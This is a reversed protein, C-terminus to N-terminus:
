GQFLIWDDTKEIQVVNPAVSPLIGLVVQQPFEQSSSSTIDKQVGKSQNTQIAVKKLPPSSLTLFISALLAFIDSNM